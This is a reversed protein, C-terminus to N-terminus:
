RRQLCDSGTSPMAQAREMKEVKRAVGKATRGIVPLMKIAGELLCSGLSLHWPEVCVTVPFFLFKAEECGDRSKVARDSNRRREEM